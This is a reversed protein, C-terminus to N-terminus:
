RRNNLSGLRKWIIGGAYLLAGIVVLSVVRVVSNTTDLDNLLVKGAIFGFLMVGAKATKEDRRQYGLLLVFMALGAWCGSTVLQNMPAAVHEDVLLYIGRMGQAIALSLIIFSSRFQSSRLLTYLLLAGMFILNMWPLKDDFMIRLYEAAIAMKPFILAVWHKTEGAARPYALPAVLLAVAFWPCWEKPLLELYVTHFIVLSVFASVVPASPLPGPTLTRVAALGSPTPGDGLLRAAAYYFSAIIAAFGLGIFPAFGPYLQEVMNYQAAYFLVLLPFFSWAEGATMAIRNRVSFAFVAITFVLFQLLQFYCVFSIAPLRTETPHAAWLAFYNGIALYSIVVILMRRKLMLAFACYVANWFIFYSALAFLQAPRPGVLFPLFYSGCVAAILFFDHTFVRFLAVSVASVLAALLMATNASYLQYHLHGSLTAVFFVVIGAGAIMAAFGKELAHLRLGTGVLGIGFLVIGAFQRQPTLWGADITLKVFYCAALIFFLIGAWALWSGRDSSEVPTAIPSTPPAKGEPTPSAVVSARPTESKTLSHPPLVNLQSEVRSIRAALEDLKSEIKRLAQESM